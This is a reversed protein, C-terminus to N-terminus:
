KNKFYAFDHIILPSKSYQSVDKARVGNSMIVVMEEQNILSLIYPDTIMRVLYNNYYIKIYDKQRDLKLNLSKNKNILFGHSMAKINKKNGYHMNTELKNKFEGNDDSYGELVDIEPPWLIAGTLWIAPWLQKGVPLTINWEFLGYMYSQKSVCMGMGTTIYKGDNGNPDSEPIKFLRDNIELELGWRTVSTANKDYWGSLYNPHYLGWPQTQIYKDKVEQLTMEDFIQYEGEGTKFKPSPKINFIFMLFNKISLSHNILFDKM